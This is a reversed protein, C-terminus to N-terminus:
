GSFEGWGPHGPGIPERLKRAVQQWPIRGPAPEAAEAALEKLVGELVATAAVIEVETAGPTLVIIDPLENQGQENQGTANM